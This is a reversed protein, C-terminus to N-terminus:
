QQLVAADSPRKLHDDTTHRPTTRRRTKHDATQPRRRRRQTPTHTTQSRNDGRNGTPATAEGSGQRDLTGPTWPRGPTAKHAEWDHGRILNGNRARVLELKSHHITQDSHHARLERKPTGLAAIEDKALLLARRALQVSPPRELSAWVKTAQPPLTANYRDISVVHQFTAKQAM